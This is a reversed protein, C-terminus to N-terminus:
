FRHRCNEQEQIPEKVISANEDQTKVITNTDHLVIKNRSMFQQMKKTHLRSMSFNHALLLGMIESTTLQISAATVIKLVQMWSQKKANAQKLAAHEKDKETTSKIKAVENILKPLDAQNVATLTEVLARLFSESHQAVIRKIANPYNNILERLQHIATSDSAFAALINKYWDENIELVNWSLYGYRMYFMWQHADSLRRPNKATKIQPKLGYQLPLLQESLDRLFKKLGNEKKLNKLISRALM